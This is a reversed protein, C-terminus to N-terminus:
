PTVVSQPPAQLATAPLDMGASHVKVEEGNVMMKNVFIISYQKYDQPKALAQQISAAINKFVLLNSDPNNLLPVNTSNVLCVTLCQDSATNLGWNEYVISDCAFAKKLSDITKGNDKYAPAPMAEILQKEKAPTKCQCFAFTICLVYVLLTTSKM